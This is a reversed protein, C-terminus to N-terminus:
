YGTSKTKSWKDWLSGKIKAVQVQTAYFLFPLGVAWLACLGIATIFYSHGFSVADLGAGALYNIPVGVAGFISAAIKRRGLFSLSSTLSSAFAIWLILLWLPPLVSANAFQYVGLLTLLSDITIGIFAPIFVQEIRISSNVVLISVYIIVSPAVLWAYQERGIVCGAWILNNAMFNFPKSILLRKIKSM